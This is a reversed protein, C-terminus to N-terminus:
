ADVPAEGQKPEELPQRTRKRGKPYGTVRHEVATLDDKHIAYGTGLREVPLRNARILQYLRPLSISLEDAAEQASLYPFDRKPRIAM